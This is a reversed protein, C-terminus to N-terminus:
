GMIRSITRGIRGQQPSAMYSDNMNPRNVEGGKWIKAIVKQQWGNDTRSLNSWVIDIINSHVIPINMTNLEFTKYESNFLINLENSFNRIIEKIENKHFVGLNFGRSCRLKATSMVANVGYENMIAKRLKVWKETEPNYEIGRLYKELEVLTDDNNLLYRFQEDSFSAGPDPSGYPFDDYMPQRAMENNNIMDQNM